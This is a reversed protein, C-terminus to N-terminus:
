ISSHEKNAPPIQIHQEHSLFEIGNFNFHIRQNEKEGSLISIARFM